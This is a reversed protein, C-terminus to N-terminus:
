GNKREREMRMCAGTLKAELFLSLMMAALHRRNRDTRQDLPMSCWLGPAGSRQDRVQRRSCTVTCIM